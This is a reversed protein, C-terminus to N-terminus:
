YTRSMASEYRDPHALCFSQGHSATFNGESAPSRSCVEPIYLYRQFHRPLLATLLDVDFGEYMEVWRWSPMQRTNIIYSQYKSDETFYRNLYGCHPSNGKSAPKVYKMEKSNTRVHVHQM